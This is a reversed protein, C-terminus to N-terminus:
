EGRLRPNFVRDLAYGVVSFALGTVMLLFSPELVWYYWGQFLAGNSRSDDIIKGWTPLTPDGLGLVALSAELFVYSPIQVIFQPILMPILRPIMYVFIIRLSSAGYSRAADIYPSEKVQMFVARYTKIGSGFISLVIVATLITFLSRSYFTGIMILIPLFPLVLNIETVRQILQDVWGGFWTGIGAIILQALSTGVAALLGFLLAVPTGWLLALGIDRRMHDTGAWGALKGYVVLEADIDSTKDFTVGEIKLTYTGKVPKDIDPNNPDSFLGIQATKGDLKRTLKSDLAMRYVYRTDLSFNGMRVETGDPYVWTLGVFPPKTEYQTNFYLTIEDPFSDAGYDFTFTYNIDKSKEKEDVVKSVAPEGSEENLVISEPLKEKRFWNFWVPAANKPNTYWDAEGGRWLRVADAYPITIVTYIAVVILALIILIGGVAAPYRFVEKMNRLNM